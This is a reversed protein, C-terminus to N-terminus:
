EHKDPHQELEMSLRQLEAPIDHPVPRNLISKFQVAYTLAGVAEDLPTTAAAAADDDRRVKSASNSVFGEETVGQTTKNTAATAAASAPYTGLTVILIAKSNGAGLADALLRTLLTQENPAMVQAAAVMVGGEGCAPTGSRSTTGGGGTNLAATALSPATTAAAVSGIAVCLSSLSHHLWQQEPGYLVGHGAPVGCVDVIWVSGKRFHGKVNFSDVALTMVVHSRARKGGYHREMALRILSQAEEASTISLARPQQGGTLSTTTTTARPFGGSSSSPADSAAASFRLASATPLLARGGDLPPPADVLLDFLGEMHIEVVSLRM